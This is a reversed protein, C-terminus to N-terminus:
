IAVPEPYSSRSFKRALGGLTGIYCLELEPQNAFDAPRYLGFPKKLNVVGLYNLAYAVFQSCFYKNPRELSHNFFCAFTGIVSYKYDKKRYLMDSLKDRLHDYAEKSVTVKYLACPALPNKGMVGKGLEEKIFGAPFPFHTYRRAFSFFEDSEPRLGISAHTYAAGTFGGIIRSFVTSSRMLLVYVTRTKDNLAAQSTTTIIRM